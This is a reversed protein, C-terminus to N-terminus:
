VIYSLAVLFVGSNTWESVDLATGGGNKYLTMNTANANPRVGLSTAGTLNNVQSAGVGAFSASANLATFPLGAIRVEGSGGTRVTTEVYCQVMVMRGIKTYTGVNASYTVTPNSGVATVTPTWTGEEYDDLTNPDSSASQSALFQIGGADSPIRIREISNTILAMAANTTTGVFQTGGGVSTVFNVGGESVVFKQAPNNTGLGLNGASTIRMSEVGGEAFGITDAAPFFIGTNTDGSTTISPAGASGAPFTSAGTAVLNQLIPQSITTNAPLATISQTTRFGLHRVHV